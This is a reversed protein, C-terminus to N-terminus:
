CKLFLAAGKQVLFQFILSLVRTILIRIRFCNIVFILSLHTSVGRMKLYKCFFHKIDM